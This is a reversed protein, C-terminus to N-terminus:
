EVKQKYISVAESLNYVGLIQYKDNIMVAPAKRIGFKAAANMAKAIEDFGENVKEYSGSNLFAQFAEQALRNNEEISNTYNVDLAENMYRDTQRKKAFDFVQIDTGPAFRYDQNIEAKESDHWIKVSTIEEAAFSFSALLSLGTAIMLKKM